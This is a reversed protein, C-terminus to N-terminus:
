IACPNNFVMETTQIRNQQLGFSVKRQLHCVPLVISSAGNLFTSNAPFFWQPVSHFVWLRPFGTLTILHWPHHPPGVWSGESEHLFRINLQLSQETYSFSFEVWCIYVLLSGQFHVTMIMILSGLHSLPLSDAQWHLLHSSSRQTLFISGKSSSIDDWGLIRAQSIGHVPSGPPSCDLPDCLTPCLQVLLAM